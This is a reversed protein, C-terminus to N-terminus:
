RFIIMLISVVPMDRFDIIKIFKPEVLDAIDEQSAWRQKSGTLNLDSVVSTALAHTHVAGGRPENQVLSFPSDRNTM